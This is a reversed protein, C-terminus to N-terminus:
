ISETDTDNHFIMTALSDNNENIFSTFSSIYADAAQNNGEERLTHEFARIELLRMILERGTPEEHLIEIAHQEGLQRAVEIKEGSNSCSSLIAISLITAPLLRRM